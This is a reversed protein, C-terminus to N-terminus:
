RMLQRAAVHDVNSDEVAQNGFLNEGRRKRGVFLKEPAYHKVEHAAQGIWGLHASKEGVRAGVLAIHQNAVQKIRGIEDFFPGEPHALQQLVARVRRGNGCAALGPARSIM